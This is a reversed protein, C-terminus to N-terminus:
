DQLAKKMLARHNALQTQLAWMLFNNGKALDNMTVPRGGRLTLVINMIVSIPLTAEEDEYLMETLNLLHQTDVQIEEMVAVAEPNLIVAQLESKSLHGSRDEDLEELMVLLTKSMQHKVRTEKEEASVDLVVQCLVGILMNMVTVASLLCFISLVLCPMVHGLHILARTLGSIDDLFVGQVLLTVMSDRVTDFQMKVDPEDGILSNMIIAFVYVLLILILLAAHVARIAAIMGKVMTVLEPLMEMLRSIRALRLLRLMRGIGGVAGTKPPTGIFAVLLTFIWTEIVILAV